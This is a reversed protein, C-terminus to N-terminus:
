LSLGMIFLINRNKLEAQTTARQGEANESGQLTSSRGRRSVILDRMKSQKEPIRQPKVTYAHNKPSANHKM